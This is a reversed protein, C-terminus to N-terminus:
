RRAGAALVGALEFVDHGSRGAIAALPEHDTADIGAERLLAVARAQDLGMAPAVAALPQAAIAGIIARPNGGPGRATAATFALSAVITLAIAVLPVNRRFYLSFARWNKVLHWIAVASFVVSLWEHSAHVLGSQWHLLLMIGTVTSVVFLVATGPTVVDRGMSWGRGRAEQRAGASLMEGGAMSAKVASKM